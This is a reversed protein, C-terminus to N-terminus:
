AKSWIVIGSFIRAKKPLGFVDQYLDCVELFVRGAFIKSGFFEESRGKM